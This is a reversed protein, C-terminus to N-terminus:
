ATPTAIGTRGSWEVLYHAFQERLAQKNFKGVSTKPVGDIFVVDDPVWWSPVKGTLHALIDGKTLAEGTKIAM